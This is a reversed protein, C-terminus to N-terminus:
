DTAELRSLCWLRASKTNNFDGNLQAEYARALMRGMAPGPLVGMDMLMAGNVIRPMPQRHQRMTQALELWRAAPRSPPAPLRGSADAQVLMEWLEISAPQLRYALRRVSRMTPESHMHTIHDRVLPLIYKVIRGPAHIRSLFQRSLPAGAESHGPAGIRGARHQITTAPKGLDHCLAAFVLHERQHRDLKNTQAITAAQDVVQLTHLWVNGEPHWRADQPCDQLLNLELYCTLWGSCELARLGYSPWPAHCWKRWESWIRTSPLNDAEPLLKRCLTATEPALTLQFRAAFQMARLPRLPDETFAISVHRLIRADLDSQGGHLDLLKDQLPDFMMANITFDRRLTAVEPSLEPNTQIDFGRHGVGAKAETRPLAVDIQMGKFWLKHVGFQKGVMECRGVQRLCDNLAGVNLGYAELDYDVPKIGLLLDRVCGGVLWAQGGANALLRCLQLVEAPLSASSDSNLVIFRGCKRASGSAQM